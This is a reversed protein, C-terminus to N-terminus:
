KKYENRIKLLEIPANLFDSVKLKSGEIHEWYRLPIEYVDQLTQEKGYKNKYRFLLEVDFFWKSLFPKEFLEIATDYVFIKAGCQTDYVPLDLTKSVATAFIRGLIHRVFKRKITSGLKLCRSGFYIKKNEYLDIFHFFWIIESLPAALDADWFGLYQFEGIILSNKVGSRITEAKGLNVSNTLVSANKFIVNEAICNLKELTKDSSCDDILLLHVNRNSNLFIIIESPNLRSYENYCPM